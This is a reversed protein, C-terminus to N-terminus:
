LYSLWWSRHTAKIRGFWRCAPYLALVIAAWVAYAAWLDYGFDPPFLKAPAGMSPVPHFIFQLAAHGYRIWALGAAAAHAAYFHLIFYFLPVRGFVILPNWSGPAFRDFFALALLMPGLTMLLFALSPPYKTCNLFSLLPWKASSWPVPDGYSNIARLVVFGVTAAAGARILIRRRAEPEKLFVPAFCFGAAMVAVWPILPYAVVVVTGGVQLGGSQHLVNWLWAFSGFQAARIPDLCNHLVITAISAVALVRAPLWVLAAMGVMCAGLVWLVVLLVPENLSFNFNYALRMVTLELAMLWLGRTLLFGSLEGRTRKQHWWFFVGLGATFMFAPACFHTIWRTLFIEPTTKSFDTPSFQMAGRHIFDRVHDLAMIIMVAGRVADISPLRPKM